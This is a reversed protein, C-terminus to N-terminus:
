FSLGIGLVLNDMEGFSYEATIDLLPLLTIAGGVSLRLNRRRFELTIDEPDRGAEAPDYTYSIDIAYAEYGVGAFLSVFGVDRSALLMGSMSSGSVADTIEFQQYGALVAIQLPSTFFHTLEHKIAAGYFSVKGIETDYTVPPLGRLIVDTGLVPGFSVQPLLLFTERLGTGDPLAIEPKSPDAPARIVSGEGGVVTATTVEAPYGAEVMAAPLKGIFSRQDDPIFTVIGKAGAWIHFATDVRATHAYGSNITYGIADVGPRLYDRALEEIGLQEVLDSLSQARLAHAPLFSFAATLFIAAALQPRRSPRM